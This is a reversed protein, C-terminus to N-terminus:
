YFISIYYVNGEWKKDDRRKSNRKREEKEKKIIRKPQLQGKTSNPMAIHVLATNNAWKKLKQFFNQKFDEKGKRNQMECEKRTDRERQCWHRRM